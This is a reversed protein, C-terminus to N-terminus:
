EGGSCGSPVTWSVFASASAASRASSSHVLITTLQRPELSSSLRVVASNAADHLSATSTATAM